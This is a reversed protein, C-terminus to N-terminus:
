QIAAKEQEVRVRQGDHLLHAGMAIVRTGSQLDGHLIVSEEGVSQVQVPRFSVTSSSSNLVWVGPGGGRDIVAAVPVEILQKHSPGDMLITVTAGLPTQAARGELVYRAEFTRTLPEAADSLQRLKARDSGTQGYVTATALSGLVPRVTEPLNVSAERPGVHALKVVTQGAAIVQGPEASTDVVVGDADAILTSYGGEDRAVKEQAEAAQLEAQAADSAAKVQDYISASIAGTKVLGRYRTEDAATQVAKAKAAAVTETRTTIAHAYDTPDITMLVQGVHVVQGPDVLRKTIKGPVRFGLNSEVRASVIGTFENAGNPASRASVVRVLEPQTRPDVVAKEHCGTLGLGIAAVAKAAYSFKFQSM